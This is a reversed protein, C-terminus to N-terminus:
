QIEIKVEWSLDHYDKKIVKIECKQTLDTSNIENQPITLSAFGTADTKSHYTQEGISLVIEAGKVFEDYNDYIPGIKGEYVQSYNDYSLYLTEKNPDKNIIKHKGDCENNQSICGSLFFIIMVFIIILIKFKLHSIM